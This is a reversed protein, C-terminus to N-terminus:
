PEGTVRVLLAPERLRYFGRGPTAHLLVGEERAPPADVGDDPPVGLLEDVRFFREARALRIKVADQAGFDLLTIVYQAVLNRVLRPEDFLNPKVVLFVVREEFEKCIIDKM